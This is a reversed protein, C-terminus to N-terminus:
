STRSGHRVKALDVIEGKANCYLISGNVIRGPADVIRLISRALISKGCGSEGLVCLTRNAYVDLDVGEVAKVVGDDTFFHTQLDRIKIMPETHMPTQPM